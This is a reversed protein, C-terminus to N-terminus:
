DAELLLKLVRTTYVMQYSPPTHAAHHIAALSLDPALAALSGFMEDEEGLRESIEDVTPVEEFGAALYRSVNNPNQVQRYTLTVKPLNSRVAHHLVSGLLYIDMLDRLRRNRFEPLVYVYTLSLALGDDQHAVEFSRHGLVAAGERIVLRGQRSESRPPLLGEMWVFSRHIQRFDVSLVQGPSDSATVEELDHVSPLHQGRYTGARRVSASSVTFPSLGSVYDVTKLIGRM